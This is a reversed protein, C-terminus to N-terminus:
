NNTTSNQRQLEEFYREIKYLKRNFNRITTEINNIKCNEGDGANARISINQYYENERSLRYYQIMWEYRDGATARTSVMKEINTLNYIGTMGDNFNKDFPQIYKGNNHYCHITDYNKYFYNNVCNIYIRRTVSLLAYHYYRKVYKSNFFIYRNIKSILEQPLIHAFVYAENCPANINYYKDQRPFSLKNM